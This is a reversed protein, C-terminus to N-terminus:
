DLGKKQIRWLFVYFYVVNKTLLMKLTGVMTTPDTLLTAMDGGSVSQYLAYILYFLIRYELLM